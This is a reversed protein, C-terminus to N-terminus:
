LLEVLHPLPLAKETMEKTILATNTEVTILQTMKLPSTFCVFFCRLCLEHEADEWNRKSHM